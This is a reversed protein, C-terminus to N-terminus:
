EAQRYKPMWEAKMKAAKIMRLVKLPSAGDPYLLNVGKERMEKGSYSGLRQGSVMDDLFWVGDPANPIKQVYSGPTEQFLLSYHRDVDANEGELMYPIANGVKHDVVGAQGAIAAMFGKMQEPKMAPTGWMVIVKGKGVSYQSIAVGGDAFRAIM